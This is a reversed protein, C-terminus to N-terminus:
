RVDLAQKFINLVLTVRQGPQFARWRAETMDLSYNGTFAVTYRSTRMGARESGLATGEKLDSVDPWVANTGIGHREPTRVTIWRDINYDYKTQWVPRSSYDLETECTRRTGSGSCEEHSGSVYREWHHIDEYHRIETGGQPVSWNSEQVTQYREIAVARSWSLQIVQANAESRYTVLFVVLAIVAVLAAGAILGFKTDDDM